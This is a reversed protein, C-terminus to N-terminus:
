INEVGNYKIFVLKVEQLTQLVYMSNACCQDFLPLQVVNQFLYGLKGMFTKLLVIKRGSFTIIGCM